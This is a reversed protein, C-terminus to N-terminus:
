VLQLDGRLLILSKQPQLVCLASEFLQLGFEQAYELQVASRYGFTSWTKVVYGCRRLMFALMSELGISETKFSDM